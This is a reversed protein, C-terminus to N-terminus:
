TAPKAKLKELMDKTMKALDYEHTWGWDKRAQSDDISKPWSDAIAQRFDPKYTCTFEPIHKRIEEAIEKPTFSIAALNYSTRITIKSADAEMLQITGRIADPMYMMPLASDERLYCEYKKDKLAAHFIAVAYDTTGGGPPAKYSILGPYRVSRVDVGWKRFYYNCLLEGTVKTVGYMTGPELITRQPTRERPTTPGFAAISSPWFVRELKQDRAIDLVNKLTGINVHWALEPNQEGKASLISALHYITDIGYKKVVGLLAEKDNADAFEVPGESLEASPKATHAMAVVNNKGYRKRLEPVLDSGIQGTAGIVLISKM